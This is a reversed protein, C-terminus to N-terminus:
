KVEECTIIDEVNTIDLRHMITALHNLNVVTKAERCIESITNERIGTIRSLEKQTMGRERLVDKLRVHLALSQASM